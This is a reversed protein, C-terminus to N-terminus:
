KLQLRLFPNALSSEEPVNNKLKAASCAIDWEENGSATEQAELYHHHYGHTHLLQYLSQTAGGEKM